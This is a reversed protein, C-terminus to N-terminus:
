EDTIYVREKKKEETQEKAAEDAAVQAAKEKMEPAPISCASSVTYNYSVSTVLAGTLLFWIYEAVIDKLNVIQRLKSQTEQSISQKFMGGKTMSAWFSDFNSPTVENILLSPDTYINQIADSAEKNPGSTAMISQLLNRVGSLKAALYGFTNSFPSLWGPFIILCVKLLGFIVLWPIFTVLAATDYQPVSCMAETTSLNVFFQVLILILFYAVTWLIKTRYSSSFYQLVSYVTTLIFFYLMSPSSPASDSM